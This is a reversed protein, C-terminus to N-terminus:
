LGSGEGKPLIAERTDSESWLGEHSRFVALISCSGGRQGGEGARDRQGQRKWTEPPFVGEM